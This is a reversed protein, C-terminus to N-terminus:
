KCPQVESDRAVFESDIDIIHARFMLKRFNNKERAMAGLLRGRMTTLEDRSLATLKKRFQKRM